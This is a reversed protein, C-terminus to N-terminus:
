VLPSLTGFNNLSLDINGFIDNTEKTGMPVAAVTSAILSSVISEDTATNEIQGGLVWGLKLNFLFAGGGLDLKQPELLDFYYDNGILMNITSSETQSPLPDALMGHGLEKNLFEIDEVRPPVLHIKGTINLVVTIKLTM